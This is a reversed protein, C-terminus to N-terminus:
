QARLYRIATLIALITMLTASGVCWECITQITFIERYTLYLSFLFGVLAVGFGAARGAEGKIFLSIWIAIYGLLGLLAVPVGALKSYVSTQVQECSSHGGSKGFCPLSAIGHYHIYTLYGAECTGILAVVLIAITLAGAGALPNGFRRGSESSTSM